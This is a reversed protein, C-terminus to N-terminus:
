DSAPETQLIDSEDVKEDEESALPIVFHFISGEGLTSEVWIEGGHRKVIRETIIMGLGTGKQDLAQENSSRFYSEKFLKNVDDEAMGLGQDKVFVHLMNGLIKNQKNAYREIVEAGITILTDEPSYKHANSVFNTLVQILKNKDGMVNPLDATINNVVQQNKEDLQKQFPILTDLVVSRFGIPAATIKFENADDKAIDRMDDIISQMRGANNVIVKAFERIKETTIHNIMSSDINEAYGKVSTLPNKLEHAAFGVFESKTKDALRLDEYLQANQIAISAHEILRQVSLQHLLNFRPEQNTELVLLANVVNGSLMPFTLQSLAGPLGNMYDHDISVDPVLDASRIRIVRGVIGGKIVWEGDYAGEPLIEEPYGIQKIVKLNSQTDDVLCILGAKAGSAEMTATLTLEVVNSLELTKNLENAFRELRELETVRLTLQEDTSQFLRANELAIAAQGAFTILLNQDDEDFYTGDVKNIVELVGITRDQAILPVALLSSTQFSSDKVVEGDFREDKEIENSIIPKGGEAVEGVLGFGKELRKGLLDAGTEGVVARFELDGTNDETTLLLSGAEANLIEVASQTVLELLQAVDGEAAVLQRSIENLASLQRARTETETFLRNKDLSTAALAGIDSFINLQENTYTKTPDDDGLALVGLVGTGAILPVGMWGKTETSEYHIEYSRQRMEHGYDNVRLPRSTQVVESFLDNGVQWRKNEKSRDREDNELFFAFHLQSINSDYLVIYFFKSPILRETQTSVLELLDDQQVTFNVAQSVKSLVNLEKVKNELSNIVQSRELAVSAQGILNTIFRLEEFRYGGKGSLPQGLTIFGSIHTSTSLGAILMTKIIGIRAKDVRLEPEWTRSPDLYIIGSDRKLLRIVGSDIGFIIDTENKYATYCDEQSNLQFFLINEPQLTKQLIGRLADVITESQVLSPLQHGFEELEIQYDHRTKYFIADIRSQLHTRIPIFLVSILFIVLAILLPDDPSLTDTAILGAGLVMLFYGVILALLLVGYTTAQTMLKDSDFQQYQLTVYALAIIPLVLFPMTTEATLQFVGHGGVSALLRSALWLLGPAMAMLVALFLINAQFRMSTTTANPRQYFLLIAGLLLFTLLAVVNALQGAIGATEPTEAFYISLVVVTFGAGLATPLSKLWPFRYAIGITRPYLVGITLNMGGLFATTGLWLPVTLHTSTADFFGSMYNALLLGAMVVIFTIPEEPRLRLVTVSIAFVVLASIFPLVFFALFDGDPFSMLSINEVVCPDVCTGDFRTVYIDVTDGVNLESLNGLYNTGDLGEGQSVIRTVEDRAQLGAEVGTWTVGSNPSGATVTNHHTLMAGIFPQARWNFALLFQVVLIIGTAIALLIMFRIRLREFRKSNSSPNVMTQFPTTTPSATSM